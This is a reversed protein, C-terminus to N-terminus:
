YRRVYYIYGGGLILTFLFWQVAYSLHPGESLDFQPEERYPLAELDDAPPAQLIYVPLLNYPLQEAIAEVNVRYWERQPGSREVAPDRSLTETPKVYGTIAVTGTVDFESWNEPALRAEPIWGRDVLVARERGPIRLPAILHGGPTGQFNQLKLLVQESFDFEGTVTVKRNEMEPLGAPVDENLNLPNAELQAITDANQARRQELRNLQWIGLRIMVAMGALVLLTVWWWRRNFLTKLLTM